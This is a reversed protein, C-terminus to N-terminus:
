GNFTDIDSIVDMLDSGTHRFSDKEAHEWPSVIELNSAKNSGGLHQPNIHHLEM